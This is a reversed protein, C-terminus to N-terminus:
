SLGRNKAASVITDVISNNPTSMKQDRSFSSAPKKKVDVSPSTSMSKIFKNFFEIPTTTVKKGSQSEYSFKKMGVISSVFSALGNGDEIFPMVNPMSRIDKLTQEIIMSVRELLLADEAQQKEDRLRSITALLEDERSQSSVQEQIPKEQVALNVEVETEPPEEEQPKDEEQPQQDEETDDKKPPDSPMPTQNIPMTSIRYNLKENVRSFSLVPKLDSIAPPIAGLFALHLLAPGQETMGISVSRNPIQRANFLALFLDTLHKVQCYLSQGIIKLESVWGYAPSADDVDHGITVPVSFSNPSFNEVISELETLTWEKAVGQSDTHTGTKFIELWRNSLTDM